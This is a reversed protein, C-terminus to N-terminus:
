MVRFFTFKGEANEWRVDVSKVDSLSPGTKLEDLFALLGAKNGEAIVEVSGDSMNRAYGLVGLHEAHQKCFYRYGVGQVFGFVRARFRANEGKEEM